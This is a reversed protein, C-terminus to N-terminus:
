LASCEQCGKDVLRSRFYWNRFRKESRTARCAVVYTTDAKLRVLVTRSLGSVVCTM